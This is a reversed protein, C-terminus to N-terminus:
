TGRGDELVAELLDFTHEISTPYDDSTGGSIWTNFGNSIVAFAVGAMLRCHQDMADLGNRHAIALGVVDQWERGLDYSM